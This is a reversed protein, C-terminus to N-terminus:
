MDKDLDKNVDVHCFLFFFVILMMVPTKWHQYCGSGHTFTSAAVCKLMTIQYRLECFTNSLGDMM